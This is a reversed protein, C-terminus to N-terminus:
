LFAPPRGVSQLALALRFGVLNLRYAPERDNRYASRCHQATYNCNGGRIVRFSGRAPNDVWASGDKPAGEYNDHGDDECWEYVNGSMDYLGLQNPYKLGVPKTESGSNENFWGVDKLRDSGAYKYNEKYCKGGRAAYEWEAEAPLCYFHDKPRTEKTLANLKELFIQVDHWSVQEVPREDGQFRAPNPELKNGTNVPHSSTVGDIRSIRASVVARWLAQTVPFQGLHFSSVTVRHQPHEDESADEGGKPSGMDFDGGEVPLMWFVQANISEKHAQTMDIKM